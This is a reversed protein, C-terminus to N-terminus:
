FEDAITGFNNKCIDLVLKALLCCLLETGIRGENATIDCFFGVNGISYIEGDRLM